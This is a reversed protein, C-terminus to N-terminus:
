EILKTASAAQPSQPLSGTIEGAPLIQATHRLPTDCHPLVILMMATSVDDVDTSSGVGSVRRESWAHQSRM